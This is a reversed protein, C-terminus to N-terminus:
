KSGGSGTKMGSIKIARNLQSIQLPKSLVTVPGHRLISHLMQSDPYGTIIVVPLEPAISRIKEYIVDGTDDPLRLDLFVLDCPRKRLHAIAESGSGVIFADFGANNLVLRFVEQLGPDDDVVLISPRKSEPKKLVEDDLSSRKIRWRGGIQIAPLKGRQVLYYVTPAPINLYASTEKVTM